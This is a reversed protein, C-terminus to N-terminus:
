EMASEEAAGGAYELLQPQYEAAAKNVATLLACAYQRAQASKNALVVGTSYLVHAYYPFRSVELRQM